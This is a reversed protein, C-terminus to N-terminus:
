TQKIEQYNKKFLTFAQALWVTSHNFYTDLNRFEPPKLFFIKEEWNVTM